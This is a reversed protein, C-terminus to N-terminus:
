HPASAKHICEFSLIHKVTGCTYTVECPEHLTLVMNHLDTCERFHNPLCYTEGNLRIQLVTGLDSNLTEKLKFVISLGLGSNWVLTFSVKPNKRNERSLQMGIEEVWTKDEALEKVFPEQSEGDEEFTIRINATMNPRRRPCLLDFTGGSIPKKLRPKVTTMAGNELTQGPNKGLLSDVYEKLM